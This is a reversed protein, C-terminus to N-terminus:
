VFACDRDVFFGMLDMVTFFLMFNTNQLDEDIIQGLLLIFLFSSLLISLFMMLWSMEFENIELNEVNKMIETQKKRDLIDPPNDIWSKEIAIKDPVKQNKIQAM